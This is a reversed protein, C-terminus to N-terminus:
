YEGHYQIQTQVISSNLNYYEDFIGDEYEEGISMDARLAAEYYAPVTSLTDELAEAHFQVEAAFSNFTVNATHTALIAYKEYETLSNTNSVTITNNTSNYVSYGANNNNKDIANPIRSLESLRAIYGTRADEDLLPDALEDEIYEIEEVIDAYNDPAQMTGGNVCRKAILKVYEEAILYPADSQPLSFYNALVSNHEYIGPGTARDLACLLEYGNAITPSLLHEMM